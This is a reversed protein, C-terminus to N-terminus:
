VGGLPRLGMWVTSAGKSGTVTRSAIQRLYLAAALHKVDMVSDGGDACAAQVQAIQHRFRTDAHGMPAHILLFELFDHQAELLTRKVHQQGGGDDLRPQVDRLGVGDQDLTRVPQAERLKVLQAPPHAAPRLGGVGVQEVRRAHGLGRLAAQPGDRVQLIQAAPVQQGFLVHFNAAHAVNQALLLVPM